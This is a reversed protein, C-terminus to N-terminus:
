LIEEVILQVRKRGNWVQASITGILSVPERGEIKQRYEQARRFFVCSASQGDRVAQFRVHTGSEGMYYPRSVFVDPLLFRPKPNGEGFPEMRALEDALAATVDGPLIELDYEGGAELLSPDAQYIAETEEVLLPQLLRFNDESITFGCASKHGGVRKFMERHADLLAFLDM